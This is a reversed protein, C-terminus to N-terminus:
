TAKSQAGHSSQPRRTLVRLSVIHLTVALPVCLAPIFLYPFSVFMRNPPEAHIFNLAGPATMIARSVVNALAALGLLNWVLAFKRGTASRTSWWAIFPASLGIYIDINAGRYTLLQPVLGELWLRHIFMEVIVRFSQFGILLWLPFAFPWISKRSFTFFSMAFIFVIVPGLIFAMGPPVANTNALRGSYVLVGVCAFWVLLFVAVASATRAGLYRGATSVVAAFLAAVFVAFLIQDTRM